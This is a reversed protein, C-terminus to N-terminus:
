SAAEEAMRLRAMTAGPIEGTLFRASLQDISAIHALVLNPLDRAIYLRLREPTAAADKLMADVDDILRRHQAVHCGLVPLGAAEMLAEERAFHGALEARCRQLAAHLGADAVRAAQALADEIRAHDDDMLTVGLPISPPLM